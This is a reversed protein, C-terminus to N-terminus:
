PTINNITRNVASDLDVQGNVNFNFNNNQTGATGATAGSRLENLRAQEVQANKIANILEREKELMKDVTESFAGRTRMFYEERVSLLEAQQNEVAERELDLERQKEALGLIGLEEEMTLNEFGLKELLANREEETALIEGNAIKFLRSREESEQGSLELFRQNIDIVRQQAEAQKNYDEIIRQTESLTARRAEEEIQAKAQANGSAFEEIQGQESLLENYKEQLENIELQIEVREDGVASSFGERLGDIKDQVSELDEQIDVAREGLSEGTKRALENQADEAERINDLIGDYFDDYEDSLKAIVSGTKELSNIYDNSAKQQEKNFEQIVDISKKIEQQREQEAKVPAGGRDGTGAGRTDFDQGGALEDNLNQASKRADGLTKDVNEVNDTVDTLFSVINKGSEVGAKQIDNFAGGIEGVGGVVGDVSDVFTKGLFDEVGSLLGGTLGNIAGAIDVSGLKVNPILDFTTDIDGLVNGVNIADLATLAGRVFTNILGTAGNIVKEVGSIVTNAISSVTDATLELIKLFATSVGSVGAITVSGITKFAGIVIGSLSKLGAVFFKLAEVALFVATTVGNIITTFVSLNGSNNVISEGLDVLRDLLPILANNIVAGIGVKLEDIRNTLIATRAADTDLFKAYEELLASNEDWASNSSDIADTLTDTSRTLALFASRTRVNAGFLEDIIEVASNGSKSLGVVFSTFADGANDEWASSFEQSSKGAVSSLLSLSESGSNVAAEIDIFAKSLATGGAEANIGLSALATGIGLIDQATFGATAGSSALRQAFLLIEGEQAAFNNGLEVLSAGLRDVDKLNVNLVKAFRAISTAGQQGVIDTTEALQALVETFKSINEVEVGLQGASQAIEALQVFSQPNVRALAKLELRLKKLDSTSADVTKTVGVFAREFEKAKASADTFFNIVGQVVRFVLFAKVADGVIRNLSLFSRGTASASKDLERLNKRATKVGNELNAVDLRARIQATKDGTKRYDLLRKRAEKLKTELDNLSATLFIRAKNKNDSQFKALRQSAKLTQADLNTTDAVIDVRIKDDAM